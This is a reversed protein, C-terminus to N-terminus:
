PPLYTGPPIRAVLVALEHAGRSSALALEVLREVTAPALQAGRAELRLTALTGLAERTLAPLEVVHEVRALVAEPLHALAAVLSATDHVPTPGRESELVLAPAVPLGRTAVIVSVGANVAALLRDAEGETLPGQLDLLLRGQSVAPPVVATPSGLQTLLTTKGAGEPGVLLALRGGGGLLQDLAQQQGPLLRLPSPSAESPPGGLLRSATATCSQCIFAGAPGAVLPGVEVAPRCCFSCWAESSAGALAVERPAVAVEVPREVRRARPSDLDDGFGFLDEVPASTDPPIAGGLRRIQRRMQEARPMLQRDRYWAEAKMLHHIAESTDGHIEAQQASALLERIESM